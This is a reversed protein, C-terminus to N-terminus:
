INDNNNININNNSNNNNITINDNLPTFYAFTLMWQPQTTASVSPLPLLHTVTTTIYTAPRSNISSLRTDPLRTSLHGSSENDSHLLSINDADREVLM